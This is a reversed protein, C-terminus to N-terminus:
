IPKVSRMNPKKSKKTQTKEIADKEQKKANLLKRMYFKRLYVPM